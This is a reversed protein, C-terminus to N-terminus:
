VLKLSSFVNNILLPQVQNVATQVISKEKNCKGQAVVQQVIFFSVFLKFHVASANKKGVIVPTIRHKITADM